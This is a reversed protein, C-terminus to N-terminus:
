ACLVALLGAAVLGALLSDRMAWRPLALHLSAPGEAPLAADWLMRRWAGKEQETQLKDLVLSLRVVLRETDLGLARCPQLLGWLASVLGDRGLRQFLWALCGLMVILRLAHLNADAIGEYTPAWPLDSFAEGPVNYTLILWLTLLLWRARRLMNWWPRLLGGGALLLVAALALLGVYGLVPLALVAALWVILACSPHM